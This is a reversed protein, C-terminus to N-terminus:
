TKGSIIEDAFRKAQDVNCCIFYQGGWGEVFKSQKKNLRNKPIKVEVLYTRKNYGLLLDLPTNLREVSIGKSKFVDIIEAENADRRPNYRNISM